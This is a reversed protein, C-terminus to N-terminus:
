QVKGTVSTEDLPVPVVLKALLWAIKAANTVPASPAVPGVPADPAVPM